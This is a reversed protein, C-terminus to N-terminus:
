KGFILILRKSHEENYENLEYDGYVKLLTLGQMSFMKAFDKLAFRTVRETFLVEKKNRLDTIAIQKFIFDANFWRTIFFSIGDKEIVEFPTLKKLVTHANLYDIVLSGGPKLANAMNKAVTINDHVDFYGFSTFFSFVYDYSKEGFCQRMDGVMFRLNHISFAQAKLISNPSLDIGTVDFGYQSLHKSHRGSGCGLDLM